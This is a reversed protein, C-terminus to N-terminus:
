IKMGSHPNVQDMRIELNTLAAVCRRLIEEMAEQRVELQHLKAQVNQLQLLNPQDNLPRGISLPNFIPISEGPSGRYDPVNSSFSPPPGNLIEEMVRPDPKRQPLIPPSYPTEEEVGNKRKARRVRVRDM